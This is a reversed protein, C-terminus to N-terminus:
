KTFEFNARHFTGDNLKLVLQRCTNAWSKITKWVYNYQDTNADYSLGSANATVTEEIGDVLVSSDCAIQQSKPYGVDFINLGQNGGLSFKVPIAKGSNTQNLVPLNDVPQFFGTFNYTSPAVVAPNLFGSDLSYAGGSEAGANAQGFVSTLIYAGGSSVGSGGSVTWWTLEYSGGSQGYVLNAGVLSMILAVTLWSWGQTLYRTLAKM